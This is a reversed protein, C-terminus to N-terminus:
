ELVPCPQLRARLPHMYLVETLALMPLRMRAYTSAFAHGIALDM